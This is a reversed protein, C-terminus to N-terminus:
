EASRSAVELQEVASRLPNDSTSAEVSESTAPVSAVANAGGSQLNGIPQDSFAPANAPAPTVTETTKTTSVFTMECAKFSKVNNDEDSEFLEDFSDIAVVVRQFGIVQGNRNGMALTDIPLTVEVQFAEGPHIKEIKATARPSHPLLRGLTAAVTVHFSEVCRTSNNSVTVAFKPGCSEDTVAVQQVDVIALDGVEEAGVIFNGYHSALTPPHHLNQGQCAVAGITLSAIGIIALMMFRTTDKTKFHNM